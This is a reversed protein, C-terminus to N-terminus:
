EQEKHIPNWSRSNLKEEESQLLFDYRKAIQPFFKFHLRLLFTFFYSYILLGFGLFILFLGFLNFIDLYNM